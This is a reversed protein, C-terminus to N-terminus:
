HCDRRAMGTLHGRERGYEDNLPMRIEEWECGLFDTRPSWSIEAVVMDSELWRSVQGLTTGVTVGAISWAVALEPWEQSALLLQFEITDGDWVEPLTVGLNWRPAHSGAIVHTRLVPRDNLSVLVYPRIESVPGLVSRWPGGDAATEPVVADIVRLEVPVSQALVPATPVNVAMLSLAIVGAVAARSCRSSTRPAHKM